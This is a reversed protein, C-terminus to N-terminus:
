SAVSSIACASPIANRGEEDVVVYRIKQDQTEIEVGRMNRGGHAHDLLSCAINVESLLIRGTGFRRQPRMSSLVATWKM